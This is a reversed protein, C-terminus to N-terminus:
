ATAGPAALQDIAALLEQNSPNDSPDKARHVFRLTGGKEIIAVGGLRLVDAAALRAGELDAKLILRLSEVPDTLMSRLMVTWVNGRQMGFAAYGDGTVDGLCLLDLEWKELYAAAEAGTGQGVAIVDVDRQEYESM